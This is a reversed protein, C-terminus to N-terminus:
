NKNIIAVDNKTSLITKIYNAVHDLLYQKPSTKRWALCISRKPKPSKFPVFVINKNKYTTCALKPILTMGIGNSIMHRLTELSTARFDHRERAKVNQCLTLVLDRM